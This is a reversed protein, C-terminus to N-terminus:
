ESDSEIESVWLREDARGRVVSDGIASDVFVGVSRKEWEIESVWESM